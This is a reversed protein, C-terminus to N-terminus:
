IFDTCTQSMTQFTTHTLRIYGLLISLFVLFESIRILAVAYRGDAIFLMVHETKQVCDSESDNKDADNKQECSTSKSTCTGNDGDNNKCCSSDTSADGLGSPATCGLVEGPSLPKAQPITAPRDKENLLKAAAAVASRFKTSLFLYCLSNILHYDM